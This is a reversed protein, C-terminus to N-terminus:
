HQFTAGRIGTGPLDVVLDLDVPDVDTRPAAQDGNDGQLPKRYAFSTRRDMSVAPNQQIMRKASTAPGTIGRARFKDM